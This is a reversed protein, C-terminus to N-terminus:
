YLSSAKSRPICQHLATIHKSHRHQMVRLFSSKHSNDPGLILTSRDGQWKIFSLLAKFGPSEVLMNGGAPILEPTVKSFPVLSIV